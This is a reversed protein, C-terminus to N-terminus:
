TLHKENLGLLRFVTILEGFDKIFGNFVTEFPDACRTHKFGVHLKYHKPREEWAIKVGVSPMSWTAMEEKDIDVTNRVHETPIHFHNELEKEAPVEKPDFYSFWAFQWSGLGGQYFLWDRSLLWKEIDKDPINIL